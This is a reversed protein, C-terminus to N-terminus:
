KNEKQLWDRLQALRPDPEKEDSEKEQECHRDKDDLKRGCTKCIGPCDDSCLTKVPLNVTLQEEAYVQLDIQRDKYFLVNELEDVEQEKGAPLLEEFTKVSLERIVDNLCRACQTTINTRIETEIFLQELIRKVHGTVDVPTEFIFKDGYYDIVSEDFSFEFEILDTERKILPTLDLKM